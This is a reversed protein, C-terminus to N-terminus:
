RELHGIKEIAFAGDALKKVSYFSSASQLVAEVEPHLRSKEFAVVMHSGAIAAEFNHSRPDDSELAHGIRAINVVSGEVRSVWVESQKLGVIQLSQPHRGDAPHFVGFVPNFNVDMDALQALRETDTFVVPDSAGMRNKVITRLGRTPLIFDGPSFSSREVVAPVARREALAAPTLALSVLVLSLFCGNRHLCRPVADPVSDM